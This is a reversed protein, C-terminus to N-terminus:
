GKHGQDGQGFVPRDLKGECFLRNEPAELFRNWKEQYEDAHILARITGVIGKVILDIGKQHRAKRYFSLANVPEKRDYLFHDGVRALGDRYQSKLFCAIAEKMRGQNFLENGKRIMETREEPKM